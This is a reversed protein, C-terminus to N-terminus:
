TSVPMTEVALGTVGDTIAAMALALCLCEPLGDSLPPDECGTQLVARVALLHEGDVREAAVAGRSITPGVVALGTVILNTSAVPLAAASAALVVQTAAIADTLCVDVRHNRLLASKAGCAANIRRQVDVVVMGGPLHAAHQAEQAVLREAVDAIVDIAESTQHAIQLVGAPHGAHRDDLEVVHRRKRDLDVPVPRVRRSPSLSGQGGVRWPEHCPSRM